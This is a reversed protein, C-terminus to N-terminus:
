STPPATVPALGTIGLEALSRRLRRAFSTHPAATAVTIADDVTDVDRLLQVSRTRLGDRDLRRLVEAGTTDRSMQIGRVYAGTPERLALLWFGGDVAPGFWADVDDPWPATLRSLLDPDLQPTDMGILITPGVCVDFLHALREDLPGDCQPLVSFDRASAPPRDGEFYLLKMGRAYQAATLTDDLAAQAVLAAHAPTLPPCLRTKVRNPLCEKAVVALTTM